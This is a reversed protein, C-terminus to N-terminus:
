CEVSFPVSILPTYVLFEVSSNVSLVEGWKCSCPPGSDQWSVTRVPWVVTMRWMDDDDTADDIDDNDDDYGDDHYDDANSDDDDYKDDNDDGYDDDDYDENDDDNDYGDHDIDGDDGYWGQGGGDFVRLALNLLEGLVVGVVAM